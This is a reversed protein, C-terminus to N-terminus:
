KRLISFLKVMSVRQRPGEKEMEEVLQAMTEEPESDFLMRSLRQDLSKVKDYAAHIAAFREPDHEPSYTRVLELYRRRIMGDDASEPIGLVEYPNM